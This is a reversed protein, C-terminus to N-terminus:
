LDQRKMLLLVRGGPFGKEWGPFESSISWCGTLQNRGREWKLDITYEFGGWGKQNYTIRNNSKEISGEDYDLATLNTESRINKEGTTEDSNYAPPVLVPILDSSLNEFRFWGSQEAADIFINLVTGNKWKVECVADDVYLRTYEITGLSDINFELAGAPIKTPAPRENYPIDLKEQVIEYTNNEWQRYVWDYTLESYDINTMPRLDWLDARDLSIRLKNDNKWVLAGLMGNGLPIAEDWSSALDIFVLDHPGPDPTINKSCAALILCLLVFLSLPKM